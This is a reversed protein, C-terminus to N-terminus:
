TVSDLDMRMEVRSEIEGRKVTSYYERAHIYWMKKIQEEIWLCKAQEWSRAKALRAAIFVPTYPDQSNQNEGSIRGPTPSRSWVTARNKMLFRWARWLPQVLKCSSIHEQSHSWHTFVPAFAAAGPHADHWTSAKELGSEDLGVNWEEADGVVMARWDAGRFESTGCTILSIMYKIVWSM